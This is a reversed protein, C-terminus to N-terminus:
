NTYLVIEQNSQVTPSKSFHTLFKPDSQRSDLCKWLWLLVQASSHDQYPLSSNFNTAHLNIEVKKAWLLTVPYMQLTNELKGSPMRTGLAERGELGAPGPAFPVLQEPSVHKLQISDLSTFPIWDSWGNWVEQLLPMKPYSYVGFNVM